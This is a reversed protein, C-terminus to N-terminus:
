DKICLRIRGIDGYVLKVMWGAPLFKDERWGLSDKLDELNCCTGKRGAKGNVQECMNFNHM